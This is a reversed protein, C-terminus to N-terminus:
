EETHKLKEISNNIDKGDIDLESIRRLIKNYADEVEQRDGRASSDGGGLLTEIYHNLEPDEGLIKDLEQEEKDTSEGVLKRGVLTWLRKDGQM